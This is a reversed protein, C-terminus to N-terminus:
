TKKRDLNALGLVSLIMLGFGGVAMGWGTFQKAETTHSRSVIEVGDITRAALLENGYPAVTYIIKSGILDRAKARIRSVERLRMSSKVEFQERKGYRSQIVLTTNNHMGRSGQSNNAGVLTGSREIGSVPKAASNLYSNGSFVFLAGLLLVFFYAGRSHNKRNEEDSEPM